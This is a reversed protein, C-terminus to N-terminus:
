SRLFSLIESILKQDPKLLFDQHWGKFYLTHEHRLYTRVLEAQRTFIENETRSSIILANVEKLANLHFSWDANFLEAATESLIRAQMNKEYRVFRNYIEPTLSSHKKVYWHYYIFILKLLSKLFWGAHFHNVTNVFLKLPSHNSITKGSVVPSVLVLSQIKNLNDAALKIALTAGFSYGLLSYAPLDYYDTFGQVIKAYDDMAFHKGHKYNDSEGVWGPLDLTYFTFDSIDQELFLWLFYIGSAPYPPLMLLKKPGNGIKYTQIDQGNINLKIIQISNLLEEYM